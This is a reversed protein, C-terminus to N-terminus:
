PSLLQETWEDDLRTYELVDSLEDSRYAYFVFRNPKLRFGCYFSSVPVPQDTCTQQIIQSHEDLQTLGTM